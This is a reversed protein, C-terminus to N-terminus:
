WFYSILKREIDTSYPFQKNNKHHYKIVNALCLTSLYSYCVIERLVSAQEM